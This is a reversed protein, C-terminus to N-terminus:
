RKMQLRGSQRGPKRRGLVSAADLVLEGPAEQVAAVAGRGASLRASNMHRSGRGSAFFAPSARDSSAVDLGAIGATGVTPTGTDVPGQPVTGRDIDLQRGQEILTQLTAAKIFPTVFPRAPPRRPGKDAEDNTLKRVSEREREVRLFDSLEQTYSPYREMAARIEQSMHARLVETRTQHSVPIPFRRRDEHEKRLWQRGWALLKAQKIRVSRRWSRQVILARRRFDKVVITLSSTGTSGRESLFTRVIDAARDHKVVSYSYSLFTVISRLQQVRHRAREHRQAVRHTRFWRQIKRAFSELEERRRKSEPLVSCRTRIEETARVFSLATLWSAQLSQVQQHKRSEQTAAHARERRLADAKIAEM